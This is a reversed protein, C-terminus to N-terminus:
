EKRRAKKAQVPTEENGPCEKRKIPTEEDGPCEKRKIPTGEDKPRKKSSPSLPEQGTQSSSNPSDSIARELFERSKKQVLKKTKKVVEPIEKRARAKWVEAFAEL